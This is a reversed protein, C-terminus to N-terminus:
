LVNLYFIFVSDLLRFRLALIREPSTSNIKMVKRLCSPIL